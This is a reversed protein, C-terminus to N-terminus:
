PASRVLQTFETERLSRVGVVFLELPTKNGRSNKSILGEALVGFAKSTGTVRTAFLLDRLFANL